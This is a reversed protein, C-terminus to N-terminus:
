AHTAREFRCASEEILEEHMAEIAMAIKALDDPNNCNARIQDIISESAATEEALDKDEVDEGGFLAEWEESTIGTKIFERDGASLHPFADQLLAGQAYNNLQQQTVPLDLTRTVGSVMSTRTINM